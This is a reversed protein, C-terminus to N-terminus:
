GVSALAILTFIVFDISFHLALPWGLGHTEIMARGLLVAVSGTAVLGMPGSPVGGYYHGIGFWLALLLIAFGPGIARQLMSLPAARFAAEEWFANLLAAVAGIGILPAAAALDLRDPLMPAGFWLMLLALGVFAIPGFRTWRVREGNKRRSRTPADLEGVRLYLERRSAGLALAWGLVLIGVFAYLVRTVLLAVVENTTDPVIGAWFSSEVIAQLVAMALTVGVMVALFRELPRLLAAGRSALWLAATLAVSAWAYGPVQLALVDRAVIEPLRSILLTVVLAVGVLARSVNADV